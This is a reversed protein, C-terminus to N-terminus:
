KDMRKVRKKFAKVRKNKSISKVRKKFSKKRKAM